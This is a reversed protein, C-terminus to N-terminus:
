FVFDRSIMSFFTLVRILSKNKCVNSSDCLFCRHMVCNQLPISPFQQLIYLFFQWFFEYRTYAIRIFSSIVIHSYHFCRIGTNCVFIMFFLFNFSLYFAFWQVWLYILLINFLFCYDSFFGDSNSFFCIWDVRDRLRSEIMKWCIRIAECLCIHARSLSIVNLFFALLIYQQCFFFLKCYYLLFFVM